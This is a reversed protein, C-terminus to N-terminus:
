GCLSAREAIGLRLQTPRPLPVWSDLAVSPRLGESLPLQSLAVTGSSPLPVVTSPPARAALVPARASSPPESPEVRACPARPTDSSESAMAGGAWHVRPAQRPTSSACAGARWPGVTTCSSTQAQGSADRPELGLVRMPETHEVASASVDGSRAAVHWRPAGHTESSTKKSARRPRVPVLGLREYWPVDGAHLDEGARLQPADCSEDRPRATQAARRPWQGGIPHTSAVGDSRAPAVEVRHSALFADLGGAAGSLASSSAEVRVGSSDEDNAAGDSTDKRLDVGHLGFLFTIDDNADMAQEFFAGRRTWPRAVGTRTPRWLVCLSPFCSLTDAVGNCLLTTRQKAVCARQRASRM